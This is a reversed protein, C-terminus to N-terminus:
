MYKWLYNIKKRIVPTGIRVIEDIEKKLQGMEIELAEALPPGVIEMLDKKREPINQLRITHLAKEM